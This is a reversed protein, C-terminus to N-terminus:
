SCKLTYYSTASAMMKADYGNQLKFRLLKTQYLVGIPFILSETELSFMVMLNSYHLLLYGVNDLEFVKAKEVFM